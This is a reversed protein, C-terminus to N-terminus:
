ELGSLLRGTGTKKRRKPRTAPPTRSPESSRPRHPLPSPPTTRQQPSTVDPRAGAAIFSLLCYLLRLTGGLVLAALLRVELVQVPSGSPSVTWAPTKVGAAVPIHHYFGKLDDLSPALACHRDSHTSAQTPTLADDEAFLSCLAPLIGVYM